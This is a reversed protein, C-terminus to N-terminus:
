NRRDFDTQTLGNVDRSSAHGDFWLVNSSGNHPRAVDDPGLLQSTLYEYGSGMIPVYGAEATTVTNSPKFIQMRRIRGDRLPQYSSHTKLTYNDNKGLGWQASNWGYSVAHKTNWNNTATSLSPCILITDPESNRAVGALATYRIYTPYYDRNTSWETNYRVGLYHAVVGSWNPTHPVDSGTSRGATPLHDNWDEAYGSLGLIFQRQQNACTISRATERASALAPLLLAILTAIISIVVLLEILTFGNGRGCRHRRRTTDMRDVM